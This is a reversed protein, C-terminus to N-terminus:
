RLRVTCMATPTGDDTNLADAMRLRYAGPSAFVLEVSDCAVFPRGRLSGLIVAVALVAAPTPPLRM